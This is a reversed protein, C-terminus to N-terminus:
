SHEKIRLIFLVLLVLLFSAFISVVAPILNGPEISQLFHGIFPISSVDATTQFVAPPTSGSFVTQEDAGAIMLNGDFHSWQARNLLIDWAWGLGQDKQGTVVLLVGSPKWPSPLIQVLGLPTNENEVPAYIGYGEELALGDETFPQPLLSNVQMILPNQAPLGVLIVNAPAMEPIFESAKVASPPHNALMASQGFLYSLRAVNYLTLSDAQDPVVFMATPNDSFPMPFTKLVPPLPSRKIFQTKITSSQLITAWISDPLKECSSYNVKLDFSIRLFNEGPHLRHPPISVEIPLLNASRKNPIIGAISYGNVFIMISSEDIALDQSHNLDLTLSATNLDIDYPLFFRYTLNSEGIGRVTRDPYGLDELSYSNRFEPPNKASVPDLFVQSGTLLVKKIPDSFADVPTAGDLRDSDAVLLLPRTADWPSEQLVIYDKDAPVREGLEPPFVNVLVLSHGTALAPTLQAIRIVEPKWALAPLAQTGLTYSLSALAHLDDKTPADPLVFLTRATKEGDQYADLPDVFGEPFTSLDLRRKGLSTGLRVLSTSAINLWRAPDNWNQCVGEIDTTLYLLATFRLHNTGSHFFKPPIVIHKKGGAVETLRTTSIQSDDLTITLSSRQPDLLPSADIELELWSEETIVHRGSIPLDLTQTSILGKMQVPKDGNFFALPM